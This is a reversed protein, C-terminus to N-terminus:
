YNVKIWEILNMLNGTNTVYKDLISELFEIRKSKYMDDGAFKYEEYIGNEWFLLSDFDRECISMDFTNFIQSLKSDSKHFKTDLIMQNIELIDSNKDESCKMFFESSKEENDNRMPDLICDHFLSCIILKEQDIQPLSNKNENIQHLLDFLHSQGHWHRHSENWMSLLINYDIRIKWKDLLAQM